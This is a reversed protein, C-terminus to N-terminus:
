KYNFPDKKRLEKLRKRFKYEDRIAHWPWTIIEWLKKM